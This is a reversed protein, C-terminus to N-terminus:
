RLSATDIVDPGFFLLMSLDEDENAMLSIDSVGAPLFFQDGKNLKFRKGACLMEGEGELAYLGCCRGHNHLMVKNGFVSKGSKMIGKEDTWVGTREQRRVHLRKLSFFPTDEYDALTDMSGGEFTQSTRPKLFWRKRTEERSLGYYHFCNFMQKFGLGQHCMDDMVQYGSPTVREVRITYDTPEQIEALFCGAGIAHPVGGEILVTDGPEVEFRHLCQLMGGIDQRHFLEEWQARTVGERFGLYVCPKEGNIERGGLIHWCETKGFRSGFLRWAMDRDPHVQITLREASDILKVLVGMTIGMNDNYSPGLYASPHAEILSKLTQDTGKVRSMGEATVAKRGPNRAETLSVIWEEPYHGDMGHGRGHFEDLLRGGVYTRWVRQNDLRVPLSGTNGELATKEM